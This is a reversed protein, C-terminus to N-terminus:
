SQCPLPSRALNGVDYSRRRTPWPGIISLRKGIDPFGGGRALRKHLLPAGHWRHFLKAIRGVATRRPFSRRSGYPLASDSARQDLGLIEDDGAALEGRQEDADAQLWDLSALRVLDDFGHEDVLQRQDGRPQRRLSVPHSGFGLLSASARFHAAHPTDAGTVAGNILSSSTPSHRGLNKSLETYGADRSYRGPAFVHLYYTSQMAM